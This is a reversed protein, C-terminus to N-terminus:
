KKAVQSIYRCYDCKENIAPLSGTLCEKIKFIIPEVWSDDGKYTIILLEFELRGDFRPRNKGANAFVFYAIDSVSFGSKRFIWQYVEVQKKYSQKYEDDLSIIKSTSTSKYDVINLRGKEDQWIDDIIGSIILNTEKHYYTKGEFKNFDDRWIFLDPHNYPVAKINYRNMLAHPKKDRRLLDFEKKLLFDVTSNLPFGPMGPRSIGLRRDLYFCRPCELFLDIKSRSIRFPLKSRPDFLHNKRQYNSRM